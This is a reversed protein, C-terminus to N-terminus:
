GAESILELENEQWWETGQTIWHVEYYIIGYDDEYVDLVVGNKYLDTDVSIIKSDAPKVIAGVQIIKM